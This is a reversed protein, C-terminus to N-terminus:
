RGRPFTLSPTTLTEGGEKNFQKEFDGGFLCQDLVIM